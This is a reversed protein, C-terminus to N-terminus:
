IILWLSFLSTFSFYIVYICIFPSLDLFSCLYLLYLFHRVIIISIQIICCRLLMQLETWSFTLCCPPQTSFLMARQKYVFAHLQESFIGSLEWSIMPSPTNKNFLIQFICWRPHKGPFKRSNEQVAIRLSRPIQKQLKSLSM